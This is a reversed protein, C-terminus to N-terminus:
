VRYILIGFLVLEDTGTNIADHPRDASFSICDGKTFPFERDGLVFKGEGKECFFVHYSWSPHSMERVFGSDPPISLRFFDVKMDPSYRSLFRIIAGSETKMTLLEDERKTVVDEEAKVGVMEGLSLNFFKALRIVLDITPTTEAREIKSLMSISIGTGESVDKLTLNKAQRLSKLKGGILQRVVM